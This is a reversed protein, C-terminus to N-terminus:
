ALSRPQPDAPSSTVAADRALAESKRHAVHKGAQRGLYLVVAVNVVLLVLRAPHFHRVVEYAEWPILSSSAIVVLWIALRTGRHLLWAEAITVAGDLGLALSSLALHGPTLFSVFGDAAEIALRSTLHDRISQALGHIVGGHGRWLAITFVLGALLLVIGKVAKYAIILKM